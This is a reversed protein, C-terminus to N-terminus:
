TVNCRCWRSGQWLDNWRQLQMPGHIFNICFLQLHRLFLTYCQFHHPIIDSGSMKHVYCHQQKQLQKHTHKHTNIHSLILLPHCFTNPDLSPACLVPLQPWVATCLLVALTSLFLFVPIQFCFLHHWWFYTPCLFPQQPQQIINERSSLIYSKTLSLARVHGHKQIDTEASMHLLVEWWHLLSSLMLPGSTDVGWVEERLDWFACRQLPGWDIRLGGQGCEIGMSRWRAFPRLPSSWMRHSATCITHTHPTHM